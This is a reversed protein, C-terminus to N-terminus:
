GEWSFAFQLPHARCRFVHAIGNDGFMIPINDESDIQFFHEMEVKCEPCSPYAVDEGWYPWGFFKDCRLSDSITQSVDCDDDIDDDPMFAHVGGEDWQVDTGSSLAQYTYRLGLRKHEMDNPFDDVPEWGVIRRTPFCRKPFGQHWGFQNSHEIVRVKHCPSFPQRAACYGSEGKGERTCYMVQLLCAERRSAEDPLSEMDLQLLLTLPEGCRLCSPLDEDPLLTPKGGFRAEPFHNDETSRAIPKYAVRKNLQRWPELARVIDDLSKNM